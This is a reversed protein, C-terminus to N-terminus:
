TVAAFSNTDPSFIELTNTPGNASQGGAVLVRGDKLLSFTHGARALVMGGSVSTWANTSPDYIEATNTFSGDLTTGGAVLVRGDGLAVATHNTRAHLMSVSPSFSAGPTFLEATALAGSADTGGTFLVRGDPLLAAASGTRAQALSGAQTWVSGAAQLLNYPFLAALFLFIIVRASFHKNNRM